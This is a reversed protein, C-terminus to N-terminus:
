IIGDMGIKERIQSLFSKIIKPHVSLVNSNNIEKNLSWKRILVNFRHFELALFDRVSMDGGMSSKTNHAQINILGIDGQNPYKFTMSLKKTKFTKDFNEDVGEVYLNGDKKYYEVFIDFIDKETVFIDSFDDEAKEQKIVVNNVIKQDEKVIEDIM